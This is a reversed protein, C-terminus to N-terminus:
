RCGRGWRWKGEKKEKASTPSILVSISGWFREQRFYNPHLALIVTVRMKKYSLYSIYTEINYIFMKGDPVFSIKRERFVFRYKLFRRVYM